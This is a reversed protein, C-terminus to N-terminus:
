IIEKESKEMNEYFLDNFLDVTKDSIQYAITEMVTEIGYMFHENGNKADYYGCFMRNKILDEFVIKYAEQKTM